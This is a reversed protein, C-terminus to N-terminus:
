ALLPVVFPLGTDFVKGIALVLVFDLVVAVVADDDVVSVVPVAPVAPVAPAAPVDAAVDVSLAVVLNRVVTEFIVLEEVTMTDNLFIQYQKVSQQM